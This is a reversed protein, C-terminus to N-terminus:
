LEWAVHLGAVVHYASATQCRKFRLSGSSRGVGPVGERSCLVGEWGQPPHEVYLPVM